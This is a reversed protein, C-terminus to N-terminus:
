RVSFSSVITEAGCSAEISYSGREIPVSVIFPRELYTELINSGDSIILHMINETGGSFEISLKQRNYMSTAQDHFFVSGKKPSVLTFPSTTGDITGSRTKM